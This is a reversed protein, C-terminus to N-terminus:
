LIKHTCRVGGGGEGMTGEAVEELSSCLYICLFKLFLFSLLFPRGYQFLSFHHRQKGFPKLGAAHYHIYVESLKVNTLDHTYELLAVLKNKGFIFKM